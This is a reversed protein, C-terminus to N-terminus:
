LWSHLSFYLREKKIQKSVISTSISPLVVSLACIIIALAMNTNQLRIYSLIWLVKMHVTYTDNKM